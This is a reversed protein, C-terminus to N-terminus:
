EKDNKKRWIHFTLDYIVFLGGTTLFPILYILYRTGTWSFFMLQLTQIFFLFIMVFTPRTFDRLVKKQSKGFAKFILVPSLFLMFYVLLRYLSLSELLKCDSCTYKKLRWIWGTAARKPFKNVYDLFRSFLIREREEWRIDKSLLIKKDGEPIYRFFLGTSYNQKPPIYENNSLYLNMAAYTGRTLRSDNYKNKSYINVALILVLVAFIVQLWSKINHNLENKKFRITKYIIIFLLLIFVFIMPYLLTPRVLLHIIASFVFVIKSFLSYRAAYMYTLSFILLSSSIFGSSEIGLKYFGIHKLLVFLFIFNVIVFIVKKTYLYISLSLFLISILIFTKTFEFPIGLFDYTAIILPHGIPPLIENNRITDHYGVGKIINQALGNYLKSDPTLEDPSLVPIRTFLIYVTILLTLTILTYILRKKYIVLRSFRKKLKELLM